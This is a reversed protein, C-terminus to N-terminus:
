NQILRRGGDVSIVQGTLFDSSLVYLAAAATNGPDSQHKLPLERKFDNFYARKRPPPLILGPAIGNVRVNPAFERAM